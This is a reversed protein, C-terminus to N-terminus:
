TVLATLHAARGAGARARSGAARQGGDEVQPGRVASQPGGEALQQRSAAVQERRGATQQRSDATPAFFRMRMLALSVLLLVGVVIAATVARGPLRILLPALVVLAAFGVAGALWTPHVRGFALLLARGAIFSAAVILLADGLVAPM